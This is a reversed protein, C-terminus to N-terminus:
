NFLNFRVCALGRTDTLTRFSSFVVWDLLKFAFELATRQAWPSVNKYGPTHLALWVQLRKIVVHREEDGTSGAGFEGAQLSECSLFSVKLLGRWWGRSKQKELVFSCQFTISQMSLVSFVGETSM